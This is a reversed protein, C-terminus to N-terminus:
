NNKGAKKKQKFERIAQLDAQVKKLDEAKFADNQTLQLITKLSQKTQEQNPREGKRRRASAKRLGELADDLQKKQEDTLTANSRAASTDSVLQVVLERRNKASAVDQAVLPLAILAVCALMCKM